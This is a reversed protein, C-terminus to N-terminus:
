KAVSLIKESFDTDGLKINNVASYKPTNSVIVPTVLPYGAKTIAGMDFTVLTQGCTVADGQAVHATFHEGNLKVTDLGIHILIEIGDDSVLGIAHKTDYLMAVTGNFPAVVKGETPNIAIGKGLAESAFVKDPAETLPIIEGKLPAYVLM